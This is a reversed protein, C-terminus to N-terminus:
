KKKSISIALIVIVALIVVALIIWLFTTQGSKAAAADAAAKAAAAEAAATDTPTTGTFYGALGTGVGGIIGLITALLPNATTSTAKSFTNEEAIAMWDDASLQGSDRQSDFYGKEKLISARVLTGFADFFDPDDLADVITEVSDDTYDYSSMLASLESLDVQQKCWNVFDYVTLDKLEAM